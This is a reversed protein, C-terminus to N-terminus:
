RPKRPKPEQAGPGRGFGAVAPSSIMARL